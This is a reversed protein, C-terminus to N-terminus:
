PSESRIPSPPLVQFGAVRNAPKLCLSWTLTKRDPAIRGICPGESGGHGGWNAVLLSGDPLARVSAALGIIFGPVDRQKIRWTERGEADFRIVCHNDGGAGLFGGDPLEELGYRVEPFRRVVGGKADIEAGGEKAQDMLGILYTGRSTKRVQRASGHRRGKSLAPDRTVVKTLEKQTSREIEVFELHDDYSRCILIRGDPLPQCGNSESGKPGAVEWVVKAGGPAAPDRQVERVSGVTTYLVNGDELLWADIQQGTTAIRWEERGEADYVALYGLGWGCVLLRPGTPPPESAGLSLALGLVFLCLRSM